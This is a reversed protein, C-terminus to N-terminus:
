RPLKLLNLVSRAVDPLLQPKHLFLDAGSALGDRELGPESCASLMIIRTEESRARAAAAITFGERGESGSLRLDSIVVAYDNGSIRSLADDLASSTDVRFGLASFYERMAFLNTTEDDTLLLRQGSAPM